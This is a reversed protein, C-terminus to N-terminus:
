RRARAKEAKIAAVTAVPVLIRGRQGEFAVWGRPVAPWARAHFDWRGAESAARCAFPTDAAACGTGARCGPCLEARRKGADRMM